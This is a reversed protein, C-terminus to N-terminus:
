LSGILGLWIELYSVGQFVSKSTFLMAGIDYQSGFEDILFPWSRVLPALGTAALSPSLPTPLSLRGRYSDNGDGIYVGQLGDALTLRIMFYGGVNTFGRSINFNQHSVGTTKEERQQLPKEV